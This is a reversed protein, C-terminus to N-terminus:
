QAGKKAKGNDNTIYEISKTSYNVCLPICFKSFWSCFSYFSSTTLFINSLTKVSNSSPIVALYAVIPYSIWSNLM